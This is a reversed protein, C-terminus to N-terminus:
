NKLYKEAANLAYVSGVSYAIITVDDGSHINNSQTIPSVLAKKGM